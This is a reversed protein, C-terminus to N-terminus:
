EDDQESENGTNMGYPSGSSIKALKYMADLATDIAEIDTADIPMRVCDCQVKKYASYMDKITILAVEADVFTM